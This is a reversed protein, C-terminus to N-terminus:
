FWLAYNWEYQGMPVDFATKYRDSESIQIKNLPKYNIVLRSVGREQEAHKNVYFATCSWKSKSPRILGKEKLSDIEKKCLELYDSNMQCPRAKTPINDESFDEEYPLSIIHM